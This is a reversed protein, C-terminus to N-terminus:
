HTIAQTAAQTTLTIPNATPQIQVLIIENRHWPNTFTCLRMDEMNNKLITEDKKEFQEM